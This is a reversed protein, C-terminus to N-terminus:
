PYPAASRILRFLWTRELLWRNGSRCPPKPAAAPSFPKKLAESDQRWPGEISLPPAPTQCHRRQRSQQNDRYRRREEIARLDRPSCWCRAWSKCAPHFAIHGRRHLRHLKHKRGGTVLAFQPAKTLPAPRDTGTPRWPAKRVPTWIMGARKRSSIASSAPSTISAYSSTTCGTSGAHHLPSQIDAKPAFRVNPAVRSAQVAFVLKVSSYHTGLTHSTKSIATDRGCPLPHNREGGRLDGRWCCCAVILLLALWQPLLKEQELATVRYAGNSRLGIWDSGSATDGAGVRRIEPCATRWGICVAAAPKACGAQASRRHRAHRGSGQSQAAGGGDRHVSHRRHRPVPGARGGQHRRALHRARSQDAASQRDQGVAHDSEGAPDAHAMTRRTVRITEGVIAASLNEAELEPEKMLWHALRRLLEAQPGGGEFGRAWLWTQDSM